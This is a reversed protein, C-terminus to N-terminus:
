PSNSDPPTTAGAAPARQAPNPCYPKFHDTRGPCMWTQTYRLSQNKKLPFYGVYQQPDLHSLFQTEKLPRPAATVEASQATTPPPETAASPETAAPVSPAEPWDSLVMNFVRYEACATSAFISFFAVKALVFAASRLSNPIHGSSWSCDM